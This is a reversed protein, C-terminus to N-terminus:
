PIYHADVITNGQLNINIKKSINHGVINVMFLAIEFSISIPLTMHFRHLTILYYVQNTSRSWHDKIKM